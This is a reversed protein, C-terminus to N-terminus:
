EAVVGAPVPKALRVRSAVHRALVVFEGAKEFGQACLARSLYQQYAPLLCLLRSTAAPAIASAILSESAEVAARQVLLDLMGRSNSKALTAWGVAAGERIVALSQACRWGRPMDLSEQWQSFTMGEVERAPAPVVSQYLGYLAHADAEGAPRLIGAPLPAPLVAGPWRAYLEEAVYPAFQAEGALHVLRSDAPLRLFVKQAGTGHLASAVGDLAEFLADNDGTAAHLSSVEWAGRGLRPQAVVVSRVLGRKAHVLVRRDRRRMPGSLVAGYPLVSSPAAALVARSRAQNRCARAQLLVM